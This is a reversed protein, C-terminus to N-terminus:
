LSSCSVLGWHKYCRTIQYTANTYVKTKLQLSVWRIRLSCELQLTCYIKTDFNTRNRCRIKNLKVAICIYLLAAFNNWEKHLFFFRTCHEIDKLAVRRIWPLNLEIEFHKKKERCKWYMSKHDLKRLLFGRKKHNNVSQVNCELCNFELM